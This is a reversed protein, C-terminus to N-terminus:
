MGTQDRRVCVNPVSIGSFVPDRASSLQHFTLPFQRGYDSKVPSFNKSARKDGTEPNGVVRESNGLGGRRLTLYIV